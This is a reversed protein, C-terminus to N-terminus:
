RKWRLYKTAAMYSGILGVLVGTILLIGSVYFVFPQPAQLEFMALMFKGNLADYLYQYGFITILIPGIAGLIGIVVGEIMFPRKIYGNTAGINRMIAIESQRAYIASKITNSILFVALVSLALIFVSGGVRIGDMAEIMSNATDGGYASEEIEEMKILQNNVIPLDSAAKVDIIFAHMLPNGEGRYMEYLSRSSEDTQQIYNELEQDKNSFVVKKVLTMKEIENQLEVIEEETVNESITAHIQLSDEINYTFNSVNGAVVLFVMLLTLTISVATSSSFTMAFHRWLSKFATKFHYPIARFYRIM